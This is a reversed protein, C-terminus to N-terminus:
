GRSGTRSPEAPSTGSGPSPPHRLSTISKTMLMYRERVLEGDPFLARMLAKDVIRVRDARRMAELYDCRRAYGLNMSSHLRMRMADPLWHLFPVRYHPEIPFWLYPTQVYYARGVRRTEAAFRIMNSYSGVHEIVSNSHALDFAGDAYQPMACGDGTVEEVAIDLTEARHLDLESQDNLVTLHVQPRLAPDLMEWYRTTGGIDLIRALDREALIARILTEILEFRRKRFGYSVSKPDNADLRKM